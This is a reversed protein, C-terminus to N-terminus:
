YILNFYILFLLQCMKRDLLWCSSGSFTKLIESKPSNRSFFLSCLVTLYNKYILVQSFCLYYLSQGKTFALNLSRVTKCVISSIFVQYRYSQYLHLVGFTFLYTTQFSIDRLLLKKQFQHLTLGLQITFDLWKHNLPDTEIMSLGNRLTKDMEPKKFTMWAGLVGWFLTKELVGFILKRWLM